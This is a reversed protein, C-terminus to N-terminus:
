QEGERMNELSNFQEWFKSITDCIMSRLQKVLEDNDYQVQDFTALIEGNFVVMEWEDQEEEQVTENNSKVEEETEEDQEGTENVEKVPLLYGKVIERIEKTTMDAKIGLVQVRSAFDEIDIEDVKKKEKTPIIKILEEVQGVTLLGFLSSMEPNKDKLAKVKQAVPYVVKTRAIVSASYGTSEAFDKDNEFMLRYDKSATVEYIVKAINWMDRNTNKLQTQTAKNVKEIAKNRLESNIAVVVDGTVKEVNEKKGM